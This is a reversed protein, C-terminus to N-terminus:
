PIAAHGPKADSEALFSLVPALAIEPAEEMPVHGLKPLPVLRCDPIWKMYSDAMAIPIMGDEEGWLLLTPAQIRHLIPEPPRLRMQSMRAVM